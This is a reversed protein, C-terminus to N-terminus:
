KAKTNKTSTQKDTTEYKIVENMLDMMKEEVAAKDNAEPNKEIYQNYSEIALNLNEALKQKDEASLKKNENKDEDSDDDGEMISTAIGEAAVGTIYYVDANEPKLEKAVKIQALAKEFEKAQVYAVALNYRTEFIGGDIDVNSELRSIAKEVEGKNLYEQAKNNLEQVAFSNFNNLCATCMISMFLATLIMLVKKM